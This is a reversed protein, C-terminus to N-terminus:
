KGNHLKWNVDMENKTFCFWNSVSFFSSLINEYLKMSLKMQSARGGECLLLSLVMLIGCSLRM